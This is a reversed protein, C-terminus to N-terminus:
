QRRARFPLRLCFSHPLQLDFNRTGSVVLVTALSGVFASKAVGVAVAVFLMYFISRLSQFQWKSVCMCVVGTPIQIRGNVRHCRYWVLFARCRETVPVAMQLRLFFRKFSQWKSNPNKEVIRGSLKRLLTVLIAFVLLVKM